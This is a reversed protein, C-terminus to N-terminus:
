IIMILKNDKKKLNILIEKFNLTIKHNQKIRKKIKNYFQNFILPQNIHYTDM